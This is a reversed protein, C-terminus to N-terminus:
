KNNSYMIMASVGFPFNVYNIIRSEINFVIAFVRNLVSKPNLNEFDSKEYSKVRIKSFQRFLYILPFLLFNFYTRVIFDDESNALKVLEKMKYRRFHHNIEDHVSWLSQYTPVTFFLIGTKNKCVREMEKVALKDDEIHEIVDFACVMDFTDDEFPLDTASNNLVEQHLKNRVFDCCEEDYEVSTVKGFQSLAESSRHTSSGVNLIKLKKQGIENEIKQIIIKERIRFWWHERELQYYKKYYDKEM